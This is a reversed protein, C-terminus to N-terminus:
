RHALAAFGVAFTCYKKCEQLNNAPKKAYNFFFHYNQLM